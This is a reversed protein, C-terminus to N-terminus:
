WFSQCRSEESRTKDFDDRQLEVSIKVSQSSQRRPCIRLFQLLYRGPVKKREPLHAM